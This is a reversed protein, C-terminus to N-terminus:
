ESEEFDLDVTLAIRYTHGKQLKISKVIAYDSVQFKVEHLGPEAPYPRRFNELPVGDFYVRSNEPAEFLVLPTADRLEITLDGIKGREVLFRRSETRYDNSLIMLHHEGERLIREEQPKDILENDIYVALPRNPLQEPYRPHIKVGGEDSLIPKAYLRFRMTEVEKSLQDVASNLKFIVPFSSPPILEVPISVYPSSRLGHNARLPFQYITQIKNPMPESVFPRGQIDVAGTEPVRDLEGYIMVTLSGRHALYAQPATLELEVGRFFRVEEDLHIIIADNYSLSISAGGTNEVSIELDGTINLHLNEGYLPLM